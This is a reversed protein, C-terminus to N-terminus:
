WSGQEEREEEEEEGFFSFFLRRDGRYARAVANEEPVGRRGLVGGSPM